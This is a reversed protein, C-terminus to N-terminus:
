SGAVITYDNQVECTILMKHASGDGADFTGDPEANTVKLEVNTWTPQTTLTADLFTFVFTSIRDVYETYDPRFDVLFTITESEESISPKRTIYKASTHATIDDREETTSPFGYEYVRAGNDDTPIFAGTNDPNGGATEVCIIGHSEFLEPNAM